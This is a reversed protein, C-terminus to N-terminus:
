SPLPGSGVVSLRPEFGADASEAERHFLYAGVLLLRRMEDNSVKDAVDALTAAYLERISYTDVDVGEMHQSLLSYMSYRDM